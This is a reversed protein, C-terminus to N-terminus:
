LKDLTFKSRLVWFKSGNEIVADWKNHWHWAYAGEFLNVTDVAGFPNSATGEFGWESDFWIGPLCLVRNRKTRSYMDGGWCFSNTRPPTNILLELFELSLDSRANLRMIAGNMRIYPESPNAGSTGWQYLFEIHNLPSMDRLVLVDMDIYFGGYKHLILLRFLDGELYCLADDFSNVNSKELITGKREERYDWKRLRTYKMIEKSLLPSPSLDVNSWLNIEFERPIDRHNAIISKLVTVQKEGFERPVRWFCHFILKDNNIVPMKKAYELSALYSKKDPRYLDLNNNIISIMNSTNYDIRV